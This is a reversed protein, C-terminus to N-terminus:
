IGQLVKGSSKALHPEISRIHTDGQTSRIPWGLAKVASWDMLPAHDRLDYAVSDVSIAMGSRVLHDYATVLAAEQSDAEIVLTRPSTYNYPVNQYIIQWQMEM